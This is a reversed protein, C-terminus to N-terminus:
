RASISPARKTSSDSAATGSRGASAHRRITSGARFSRTSSRDRRTPTLKGDAQQVVAHAGDELASSSIWPQQVITVVRGRDGFSPDLTGNEDFRALAFGREADWGMGGLVLKGDSQRLIARAGSPMSGWDMNTRVIGTGGFSPDLDGPGALAIAATTIGAIAAL